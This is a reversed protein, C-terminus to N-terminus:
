REGTKAPESVAAPDLGVLQCAVAGAYTAASPDAASTAAIADIGDFLARVVAEREFSVLVARGGKAAAECTAADDSIGVVWVSAALGSREAAALATATSAPDGAVLVDVRKLRDIAPLLDKLTAEVGGAQRQRLRVDVKGVRQEIADIALDARRQTEPWRGDEVVVIRPEKVGDAILRAAVREGAEKALTTSSAGAWPGSRGDSRLAILLPMQREKAVVRARQLLDPAFPFLLLAAVKADVLALLAAESATASGIGARVDLERGRRRAEAALVPEYGEFTEGFVVGIRPLPAPLPPPERLSKASEEEGGGCGAAALLLGAAWRSRVRGM